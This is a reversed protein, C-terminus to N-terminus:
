LKSKRLAHVALLLWGLMLLLGGVPAVRTAGAMSAMLSLYISGSFLVVGLLIVLSSVFIMRDGSGRHLLALFLLVVAHLLHMNNAAQWSKYKALEDLGPVMHSGLAALIVGSLGALAGALLILGSKTMM